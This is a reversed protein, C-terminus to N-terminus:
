PWHLGAVGFCAGACTIKNSGAGPPSPIDPIQEPPGSGPQCGRRSLSPTRPASAPLRHLPQLGGHLKVTTGQPERGLTPKPNGELVNPPLRYGPHLPVLNLQGVTRIKKPVPGYSTSHNHGYPFSCFYAALLWLIGSSHKAKKTFRSNAKSVPTKHTQRIQELNNKFFKGPSARGGARGSHCSARGGMWHVAHTDIADYRRQPTHYLLSSGCYAQITHIKQKTRLVLCAWLCCGSIDVCLFWGKPMELQLCKQNCGNPRELQLRQANTSAAKPCKQSCGKPMEQQLRRANGTIGKPCKQNCGKPNTCLRSICNKVRPLEFISTKSVKKKSAM